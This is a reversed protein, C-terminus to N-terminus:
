SITTGHKMGLTNQTTAGEDQKFIPCAHLVGNEAYIAVVGGPKVKCAMHDGAILASAEHIVSSHGVIIIPKGVKEALRIGNMVLPHIRGRFHDLSEGHPMPLSPDCIYRQIAEVNEATKEKGGFDGIDWPMLGVNPMPEMGKREAIIKATDFARMKPSTFIAALDIPEFLAALKNADRYGAANLPVNKPGRFKNQDNLITDGHRVLFVLVNDNWLNM